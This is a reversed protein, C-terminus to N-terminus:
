GDSVRRFVLPNQREDDLLDGVSLGAVQEHTLIDQQGNYTSGDPMYAITMAFRRRNTMNAGAGHATLGNHAVASGAPVPCFVPDVDRLEPYVDFLAGLEPGIAANSYKGLRHSGPIYCLAGNELTSDTLAIWITIASDSTFSWFPNDIHYATPSSWPEKILAQDLWIRVGEVQALEAAIRGLREDLVLDKVAPDTMWLNIRQTFVSNYYENETHFFEAYNTGELPTRTTRRAAATGVVELWRAREDETLIGPLVVFGNEQYFSVEENTPRSRMSLAETPDSLNRIPRACGCSARVTLNTPLVASTTRPKARRVPARGGRRSSASASLLLDIAAQGLAQFPLDVTTLPPVTSGSLALGDLAIIALDGPVRVGQEAAAQLVGYAQEDSFVLLAGPRQRGALLTRVARHAARRDIPSFLLPGPPIGRDALASRWGRLRQSTVALRRPGALCGVTAHGHGLLHETAQRAGDGFAVDVRGGALPSWVAEDVVVAAVGAEALRGLLRSPVGARSRDSVVVAGSVQLDILSEVYSDARRRDGVTNGLYLLRGERFAANEIGLILEGFFPYSINPVIAGVIPLSRGKLGKALLNPRYGLEDMAARVRRATTAAVPRPGGNAVYSVVASSVGALRAVDDRTTM